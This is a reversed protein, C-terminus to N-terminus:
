AGAAELLLDAVQRPHTIMADHPADLVRFQHRPGTRSRARHWEVEAGPLASASCEIYTSPHARAREASELHDQYTRIPQATVKSNAWAVDAPDSVGWYSADGAPLYWGEGDRECVAMMSAAREAGIVDFVSQGSRPLHADLLVLRRVREHVQEMAGAAVVGGYSHAVLIVDRLDEYEFVATVDAVHTALGIDRSLLHAREGLGTLTPSHVEHGGQGLARAVRRWCWGGHRGGHVLLFVPKDSV